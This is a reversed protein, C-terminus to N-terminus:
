SPTAGTAFHRSTVRSNPRGWSQDFLRKGILDDRSWHQAVRSKAVAKGEPLVQTFEVQLKEQLDGGLFVFAQDLLHGRGEFAFVADSAAQPCRREHM